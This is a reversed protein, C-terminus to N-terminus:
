LIKSATGRQPTCREAFSPFHMNPALLDVCVKKTCLKEVARRTMSTRASFRPRGCRFTRKGVTGTTPLFKKVGPCGLTLTRFTRLFDLGFLKHKHQKRGQCIFSRWTSSAGDIPFLFHARVKKACVKQGGGPTRSMGAFIGPCGSEERRFGLFVFKRPRARVKRGGGRRTSSGWGM